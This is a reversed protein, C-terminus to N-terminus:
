NPDLNNFHNSLNANIQDNNRLEHMINTILNDLLPVEDPLLYDQTIVKYESRPNIGCVSRIMIPKKHIGRTVYKLLETKIFEKLDLKFSNQGNNLIEAIINKMLVIFERRQDNDNIFSRWVLCMIDEIYISPNKLFIGELSDDYVLNRLRNKVDDDDITYGLFSKELKNLFIKHKNIQFDKESARICAYINNWEESTLPKSMKAQINLIINIIINFNINIIIYYYKVTM